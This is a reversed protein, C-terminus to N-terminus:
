FRFTTRLAGFFIDSNDQNHNPATLWVVAPTIDIHNNLAIRYFAEIHLGTDPDRRRGLAAGLAPTTGTLRPQIGVVVGGLNGEGALDPLALTLGYNWVDADGLELARIASFGAWGGIQFGDFKLNASIGYSNASVPRDADVAALLSGTGTQVGATITGTLTETIGTYSNIYTLSVDLRGFLDRAKVQGILGYNGNFLGNGDLANGAEGAAYGLQFTIDDTLFFNVAAGTSTNATRYIPPRQSFRTVGGRVAGIDFPHIVGFGLSDLGAANAFLAVLLQDGVPFVYNLTDLVVDGDTLAVGALAVENGPQEFRQYNGAQLIAALQDEGTFSTNFILRSRYHGVVNTDTEDDDSFISSVTFYADGNLKTTTSFQNEALEEVRAELNDVRGRLSALEAAFEEQLRQLTALDDETVLDATSAAILESIRDLCANLGAAFEYRTLATQGRYTGDAYGVICGYREVLSRLAQYAWDSPQVDSFQTVATVQGLFDSPTSTDLDTLSLDDTTSYRIVQDLLSDNTVVTRSETSKFDVTRMESPLPANSEARIPLLDPPLNSESFSSYAGIADLLTATDAPQTTRDSQPEANAVAAFMLVGLLVPVPAFAMGVLKFMM